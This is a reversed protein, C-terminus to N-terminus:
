HKKNYAAEEKVESRLSDLSDLRRANKAEIDKKDKENGFKLADEAKHYNDITNVIIEEIREVNDSRDDPNVKNNM